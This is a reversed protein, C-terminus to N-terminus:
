DKGGRVCALFIVPPHPKIQNAKKRERRTKYDIFLKAHHGYCTINITDANLKSRISLYIKM